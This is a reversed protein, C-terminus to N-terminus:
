SLCVRNFWNRSRLAFRRIYVNLANFILMLWVNLKLSMYPSKLFVNFRLCRLPWNVILNRLPLNFM